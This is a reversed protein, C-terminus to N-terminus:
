LFVCEQVPPEMVMHESREPSLPNEEKINTTNDMRMMTDTVSSYSVLM